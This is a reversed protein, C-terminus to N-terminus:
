KHYNFCTDTKYVKLAKKDKREFIQQFPGGPIFKKFHGVQYELNTERQWGVHEDNM